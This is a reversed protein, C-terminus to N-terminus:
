ESSVKEVAVVGVVFEVLVLSLSFGPTRPSRGAVLRVHGPM